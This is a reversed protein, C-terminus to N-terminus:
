VCRLITLHSYASESVAIWDLGRRVKSCEERMQKGETTEMKLLFAILSKLCTVVEANNEVSSLLMHVEDVAHRLAEISAELYVQSGWLSDVPPPTSSCDFGSFYV